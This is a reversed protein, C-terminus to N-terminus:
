SCAKVPGTQESAASVAIQQLEKAFHSYNRECNYQSEWMAKAAIRLDDSERFVEEIADAVDSPESDPVLLRGNEHNVIEPTGGVSTAVAPISASFAEMISVPVGESLSTNLFVDIRQTSYFEIVKSNSLDGLAVVELNSPGARGARQVLALDPGTGIHTWRVRKGPTRKAYESVGAAMLNLRKIPLAYSCSVLHVASNDRPIESSQSAGVGLRAVRVSQRRGSPVQECIAQQGISSCPFIADISQSAKRRSPFFSAPQREPFCDVGHCRTVVPIGRKDMGIGLAYTLPSFWYSYLLIPSEASSVDPAVTEDFVQKMYCVRVLSKIALSLRRFSLRGGNLVPRWDSILLGPHALCAILVRLARKRKVGPKALTEAFALDVQVNAPLSRPRDGVMAPIVRIGDFADALYEIETELFHEGPLYPFRKTFLFLTSM